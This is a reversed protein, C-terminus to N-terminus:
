GAYRYIGEIRHRWSPADYHELCSNVGERCHIFLSHAIILGVHSPRWLMRFVLVDGPQEEGAAIPRWRSVVEGAILGAVEVRDYADAYEEAYSPVRLGFEEFLALWVLGFCDVGDKSRGRDKFPIGIWKAWRSDVQSVAAM